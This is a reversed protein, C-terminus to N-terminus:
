ERICKVQSVPKAMSETLPSYTKLSTLGTEALNRIDTMHNTNEKNYVSMYLKASRTVPNPSPSDPLVHRPTLSLTM